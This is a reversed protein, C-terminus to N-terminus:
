APGELEAMVRCAAALPDPAATIPRGVVVFDAGARAAAAPTMVRRQDHADAGAPRVGPTVLLFDPGCAKRVAAVERPSAVVGDLGAKLCLRALVLVQDTVSFARIGTAELDAEDLSTLVTVGLLRAGGAERNAAVAERLMAEGGAAHVNWMGVGPLAAVVRGAGAVTAPIDHFKVDLFVQKGAGAVLELAERGAAAWLELGIKFWDVVPALQRVLEAARDLGPM